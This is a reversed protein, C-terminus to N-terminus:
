AFARLGLSWIRHSTFEPFIRFLDAVRKADPNKRFSEGQRIKHKLDNQDISDRDYSLKDKSHQEVSSEAQAVTGKMGRKGKGLKQENKEEAKRM